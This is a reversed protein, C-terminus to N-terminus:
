ALHHLGVWQWLTVPFGDHRVLSGDLDTRPRDGYVEPWVFHGILHNGDADEIHDYYTCHLDERTRSATRPHNHGIIRITIAAPLVSCSM